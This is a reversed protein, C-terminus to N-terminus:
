AKSCESFKAFVVKYLNLIDISFVPLYFTALSKHFKPSMYNSHAVGYNKKLQLIFNLYTFFIFKIETNM